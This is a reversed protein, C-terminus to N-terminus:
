IKNKMVSKGSICFSMLHSYIVKRPIVTQILWCSTIVQIQHICLGHFSIILPTIAMACRNIAGSALFLGTGISGGIAIMNLHRASLKRKLHPTATDVAQDNQM